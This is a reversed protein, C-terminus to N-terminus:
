LYLMKMLKPKRGKKIEKMHARLLLIKNIREVEKWNNREIAMKKMKLLQETTVTKENEMIIVKIYYCGSILLIHKLGKFIKSDKLSYM